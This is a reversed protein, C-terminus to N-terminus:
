RPLRISQTSNSSQLAFRRPDASIMNWQDTSVRVSKVGHVWTIGGMRVGRQHCDRPQM